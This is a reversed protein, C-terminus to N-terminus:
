RLVYVGEVSTCGSAIESSLSATGDPPAWAVELTGDARTVYSYGACIDGEETALYGVPHAADTVGHAITEGGGSLRATADCDEPVVLLNEGDRRAYTGAKPERAGLETLLYTGEQSACAAITAGDLHATPDRDWTVSVEGFARRALRYAGCLDGEEAHMLGDADIPGAAAEGIFNALSCRSYIMLITGRDSVYKGAEIRKADASSADASSVGENLNSESSTGTAMDTVACGALPRAVAFTLSLVLVKKM